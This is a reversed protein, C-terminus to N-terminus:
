TTSTARASRAKRRTGAAPSTTGTAPTQEKRLLVLGGKDKVRTAYSIRVLLKIKNKQEGVVQEGVVELSPPISVALDVAEEGPSAEAAGGHAIRRRRGLLWGWVDDGSILKEVRHLSNINAAPLLVATGPSATGSILGSVNKLGETNTLLCSPARYGHKEVAARAEILADLLDEFEPTAPIKKETAAALAPVVANDVQAALKVTGEIVKALVADPMPSIAEALTVFVEVTKPELNVFEPDTLSDNPVETRSPDGTEWHPIAQWAVSTQEFTEKVKRNALALREASLYM